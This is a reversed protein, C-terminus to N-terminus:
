KCGPVDGTQGPPHCKEIGQGTGNGPGFAPDAGAASQVCIVVAAAMAAVAILIKRM